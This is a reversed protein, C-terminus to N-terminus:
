GTKASISLKNKRQSGTLRPRADYILYQGDGAFVWMTYISSNHQKNLNPQLPIWPLPHTMAAREGVSLAAPCIDQHIPFEDLAPDVCDAAVLSSLGASGSTYFYL